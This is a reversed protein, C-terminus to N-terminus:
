RGDEHGRVIEKHGGGRPGDVAEAVL